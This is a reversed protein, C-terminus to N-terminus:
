ALKKIEDRLSEYEPKMVSSNKKNPLEFEIEYGAGKLGEPILSDIVEGFKFPHATSVFFGTEDVAKEKKLGIFAASTHPDMLYGAAKYLSQINSRIQDDEVSFSTLSGSLTKLQNNYLEYMRPFNSPDGVDMANAITVITDRPDYKGSLLFRPVVDNANTAAIFRKIPLGMKTALMAATINGFNGSPVSVVPADNVGQKRLLAVAHFYYIMQPLLRGINISNASTMFIQKRLEQDNFAEKVLRQCDDFSGEVAFAHVNEGPSTIQFEQYPSVKGNPYLVIVEIGKVKHFGNAVAGGTDGSTATLVMLKRAEGENFYGLLRSLFRAGVDKFAQTPGHFLELSFIKDEVKVLPIDFSFTEEVIRQLVEEPVEEQVFPKLVEFAIQPLTLEHFGDIFSQPLTPIREPMFLSGDPALGKFLAEKLTYTKDKSGLSIYKM